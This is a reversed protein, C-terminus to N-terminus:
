DFQGGKVGLIFAHWEKATFYYAPLARDKTDRIWYGGDAGEAVEVCNEAGGSFSSKRWILNELATIDSM